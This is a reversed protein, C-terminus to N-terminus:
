FSETIQDGILLLASGSYYLQYEIEVVSQMEQFSYLLRLQVKYRNTWKPDSQYSYDLFETVAGKKIDRQYRDVILGLRKHFEEYEFRYNKQARLKEEEKQASEWNQEDIHQLYTKIRTYEMKPIAVSDTILTYLDQNFRRFDNETQAIIQPSSNFILALLCLYKMLFKTTAM